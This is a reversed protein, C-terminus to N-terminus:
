ANSDRDLCIKLCMFLAFGSLIIIPQVLIAASHRSQQLWELHNEIVWDGLPVGAIGAFLMVGVWITVKLNKSTRHKRLTIVVYAFIILTPFNLLFVDILM